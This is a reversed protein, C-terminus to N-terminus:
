YTCCRISRADTASLPTPHRTLRLYMVECIVGAALTLRTYAEVRHSSLGFVGRVTLNAASAGIFTGTRRGDDRARGGLVASGSLRGRGAVGSALPVGSLRSADRFHKEPVTLPPSAQTKSPGRFPANRQPTRNAARAPRM